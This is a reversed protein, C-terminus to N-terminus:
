LMFHSKWRGTFHAITPLSKRQFFEHVSLETVIVLESVISKSRGVGGGFTSFELTIKHYM